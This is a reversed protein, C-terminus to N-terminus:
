QTFQYIGASAAGLLPLEAVTGPTKARASANACISMRGDNGATIIGGMFAAFFCVAPLLVAAL